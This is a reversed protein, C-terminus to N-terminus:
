RRSVAARTARHHESLKDAPRATNRLLLAHTMPGVGGPVPTIMGAVEKVEEFAVDGGLGGETRHVGVDVVVAGPKIMDATVLQPRGTAAVLIDARRTHQALDRTKVHCVTVTANGRIWDQALLISLPAGVLDGYGAVVIEAGEVVATDVVEAGAEAYAEDLFGAAVGADREIRVDFGAERLRSVTEPVLAVRREGPATEKPVAVRM